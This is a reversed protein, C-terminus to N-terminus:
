IARECFENAGSRAFIVFGFFKGVKRTLRWAQHLARCDASAPSMSGVGSTRGNVPIPAADTDRSGVMETMANSHVEDTAAFVDRMLEEAPGEGAGRRNRWGLQSVPDMNAYAHAWKKDSNDRDEGQM